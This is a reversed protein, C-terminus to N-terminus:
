VTHATSTATSATSLRFDGAGGCWYTTITPSLLSTSLTEAPPTRRRPSSRSSCNRIKEDTNIAHYLLGVGGALKVLLMVLWRSSSSTWEDDADTVLMIAPRSTNDHQEYYDDMNLVPPLRRRGWKEHITMTRRTRGCNQRGAAAGAAHHPRSRCCWCYCSNSSRTSRQDFKNCSAINM